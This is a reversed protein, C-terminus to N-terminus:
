KSIKNPTNYTWLINFQPQQTLVNPIVIENGGLPMLEDGIIFNKELPNFVQNRDAILWWYYNAINVIDKYANFAVGMLEDEENFDQYKDTQEQSVPLTDRILIADVADIQIIRGNQYLDADLLRLSAITTPTAM